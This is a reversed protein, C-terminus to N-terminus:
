RFDVMDYGKYDGKSFTPLKTKRPTLSKIKVDVRDDYLIYAISLPKGTVSEVGLLIEGEMAEDRAVLRITAVGDSEKVLEAAYEKGVFDFCRTPNDLINQSELDVVDVSVEKRSHDVEYRTKGDAYVEAEGVKIYYRDGAVSYSGSAKYDGASVDVAADYSGLAKVYEAVRRLLQEEGEARASLAFALALLLTFFRRM